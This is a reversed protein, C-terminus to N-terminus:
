FHKKWDHLNDLEEFRINTVYKDISNMIEHFYPGYAYNFPLFLSPVCECKRIKENKDVKLILIEIIM